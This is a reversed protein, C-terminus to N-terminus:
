PRRLELLLEAVDRALREGLLELLVRAVLVGRLLLLEARLQHALELAEHDELDDVLAPALVEVRHVVQALADVQARHRLLVREDLVPVLAVEHELLEAGLDAALDHEREEVGCSSGASASCASATSPFPERPSPLRWYSCWDSAPASAIAAAPAPSSPAHRRRRPPPPEVRVWCITLESRSFM